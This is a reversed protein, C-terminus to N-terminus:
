FHPDLVSADQSPPLTASLIGAHGWENGKGGQWGRGTQWPQDKNPM